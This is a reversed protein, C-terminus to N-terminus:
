TRDENTHEDTVDERTGESLNKEIELEIEEQRPTEEDSLMTIIKAEFDSDSLVSRDVDSLNGKHLLIIEDCLDKALQLIHTSFIIIHDEHISRILKKMELQVVVDLSTLPEDMLIIPPRLIMFMLMQLKNKMGTSYGNILLDRDEEPFDIMNFYDDESKKDKIREENVQLFFRIFERGTLFAPLTPEAIMFFIDNSSVKRKGNEDVISIEGSDKKIEESILSFLTTKGSGNRGLLAYVIGKEFTYSLDTLVEKKDFKKYLNNIELKMFAERFIKTTHFHFKIRYSIEKENRNIINIIDCMNTRFAAELRYSYLILLKKIILKNSKM